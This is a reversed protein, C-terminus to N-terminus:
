CCTAPTDFESHNLKSFLEIGKQTMMCFKEPYSTIFGAHWLRNYELGVYEAPVGLEEAIPNLDEKDSISRNSDSTELKRAAALIRRQIEM